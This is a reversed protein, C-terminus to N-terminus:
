EHSDFHKSAEVAVGMLSLDDYGYNQFSLGFLNRSQSITELTKRFGVSDRRDATLGREACSSKVRLSDSEQLSCPFALVNTYATINGDKDFVPVQKPEYFFRPIVTVKVPSQVSKSKSNAM